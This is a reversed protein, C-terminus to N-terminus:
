LIPARKSLFNVIHMTAIYRSDLSYMSLHGRGSYININNNKGKDQSCIVSIEGAGASTWGGNWFYWNTSDIDFPCVSGGQSNAALTRFNTGLHEIGGVAWEDYDVVFWIANNANSWSPHGNVIASEQYDGARTSQSSLVNGSM